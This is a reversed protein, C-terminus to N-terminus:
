LQHSKFRHGTFYIGNKIIFMLMVINEQNRIQLDACVLDNDFTNRVECMTQSLSQM